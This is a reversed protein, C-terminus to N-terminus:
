WLFTSIIPKSPLWRQRSHNNFQPQVGCLKSRSSTYLLCSPSFSSPIPPSSFLPPPECSLFFVGYIYYRGKFFFFFDTGIHYELSYFISITVMLEEARFVYVVTLYLPTSSYGARSWDKQLTNNILVTSLQVILHSQDVHKSTHSDEDLSIYLCKNSM